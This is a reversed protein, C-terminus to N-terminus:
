LCNVLELVRGFVDVFLCTQALDGAQLDFASFREDAWCHVAVNIQQVYSDVERALGAVAACCIPRGIHQYRGALRGGQVMALDNLLLLVDAGCCVNAYCPVGHVIM